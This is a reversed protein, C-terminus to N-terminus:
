IPNYFDQFLHTINFHQALHDGLRRIGERETAHHGAGYLHIGLERAESYSRESLEGTIFADVGLEAAAQLYDQAGGSCWAVREVGRDLAAIHLPERDLALTIQAAFAEGSVTEGLRGYMGIQPEALGFRGEVEIGLMSALAANNGLEPHADLPLHYALLSIDNQILERVRQYKIGILRPDEGKWFYGHHVLLADAQSEIAAAILEQSASVGTVITNIEPRGSIQLGNPAYDSFAAVQLLEDIYGQLQTL